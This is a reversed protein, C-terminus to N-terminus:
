GYPIIIFKKLRYKLFIKLRFLKDFIFSLFNYQSIYKKISNVKIFKGKYFDNNIDKNFKNIEFASMNNPHLCITWVGFPFKFPKWIQQPLFILGDKITPYLGIGDSIIKIDSNKKIVDITTKDFSHSPAVWINTIINKSSFIKLGKSIKEKQKISDLCAFESREYLPLFQKERKIKHYKHQYGHLAINWGKKQWSYVLNWFDKNKKKMFLEKDENKPIVAVIPKVNLSDLISEIKSWNELNMTECADDLRIIYKSNGRFISKILRIILKSHIINQNKNINKYAM